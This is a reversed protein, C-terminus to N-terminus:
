ADRVEGDRVSQRKLENRYGRATDYGVGAERGAELVVANPATWADHGARTLADAFKELRERKRETSGRLSAHVAGAAAAPGQFPQDGGYVYNQRLEEFGPTVSGSGLSQGKVSM